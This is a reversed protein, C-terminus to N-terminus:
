NKLSTLYTVIASPNITTHDDDIKNELLNVKTELNLNLSNYLDLNTTQHHSEYFRLIYQDSKKETPKFAM